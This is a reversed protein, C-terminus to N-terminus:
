VFAFNEIELTLIRRGKWLIESRVPVDEENLWIDLHLADEEYTDDLTLRLYAGDRGCSTLYGSRLTRLFIWPAAAPSIEGDALLRFALAKDDFTLKGGAASLTGTINAITEPHRVTFKVTGEADTQCAVTFTYIADAYDATIKADFTVGGSLVRTRLVLARDMGEETSKCGTLLLVALFVAWIRKM